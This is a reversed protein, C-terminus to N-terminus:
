NKKRRELAREISRRHVRVGFRDEILRKVAETGHGEDKAKEVFGMVEDSLKHAQRPGRKKSLLGAIGSQRFAAQLRYFSLRSFGFRSCVETISQGDLGARRLMEYKVQLLDQPDFFDNEAFLPDQVAEARKNFTGNRQLADIKSQDPNKQSMTLCREKTSHNNYLIHRKNIWLDLRKNETNLIIDYIYYIIISKLNIMQRAVLRNFAYNINCILCLKNLM